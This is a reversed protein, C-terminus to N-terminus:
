LDSLSDSLKRTVRRTLDRPAINPKLVDRFTREGVAQLPDRPAVNPKSASSVYSYTTAHSSPRLDDRKAINPHPHIQGYDRHSISGVHEIDDNTLNDMTRISQPAASPPRLQDRKAINPRSSAVFHPPSPDEREQTYNENSKPPEPVIEMQDRFLRSTLDRKAINAPSQSGGEIEMETCSETIPVDFRTRKPPKVSCFAIMAWFVRDPSLGSFRAVGNRVLIDTGYRTQIVKVRSGGKGIMLGVLQPDVDCYEEYVQVEYVQGQSVTTASADWAAPLVFSQVSNSLSVDGLIRELTELDPLFSDGDLSFSVRREGYWEARLGLNTQHDRFKDNTV